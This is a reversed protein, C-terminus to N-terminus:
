GCAKKLHFQKSEVLIVSLKTKIQIITKLINYPLNQGAHVKQVTMPYNVPLLRFPNLWSPFSFYRALLHWLCHEPDSIILSLDPDEFQFDTIESGAGSGIQSGFGKEFICM